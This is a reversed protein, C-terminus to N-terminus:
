HLNASSIAADLEANQLAVALQLPSDFQVPVVPTWESLLKLDSLNGRLVGVRRGSLEDMSAITSGQRTFIFKYSSYLSASFLFRDAREPHSASAALGYLEGREARAVMDGWNGLVLEINADTLANIRAILDMEIGAQTGDNRRWVYPRWHADSGLLIHPNAALWDREGKTLAIEASEQAQLLYPWLLIALLWSFSKIPITKTLRM